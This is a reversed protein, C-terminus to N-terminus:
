TGALDSTSQEIGEFTILRNGDFIAHFDGIKGVGQTNLAGSFTERQFQTDACPDSSVLIIASRSIFLKLTPKATKICYRRTIFVWGGLWGGAVDGYCTCAICIQTASYFSFNCFCWKPATGKKYKRSIHWTELHLACTHREFRSGNTPWRQWLVHRWIRRNRPPSSWAPCVGIGTGNYPSMLPTGVQPLCVAAEWNLEFHQNPLLGCFCM